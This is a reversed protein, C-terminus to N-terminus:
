PATTMVAATVTVLSTSATDYDFTVVGVCHTGVALTGSSLTVAAVNGSPYSNVNEFLLPIGICSGSTDAWVQVLGASSSDFGTGSVQFSAGQTVTSPTVTVTQAYVNRVGVLLFLITVVVLTLGGAVRGQSLGEFGFAFV